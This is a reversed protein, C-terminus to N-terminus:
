QHCSPSSPHAPGPLLAHAGPIRVKTERYKCAERFGADQLLELIVENPSIVNNKDEQGRHVFGESYVEALVVPPDEMAVMGLEFAEEQIRELLPDDSPLGHVTPSVVLDVGVVAPGGEKVKAILNALDAQWLLRPKGFKDITPEDVRGTFESGPLSRRSKGHQIQPM